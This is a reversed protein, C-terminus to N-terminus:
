ANLASAFGRRMAVLLVLATVVIIAAAHETDLRRPYEGAPVSSLENPDVAV